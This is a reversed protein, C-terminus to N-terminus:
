LMNKLMYLLKPPCWNKITLKMQQRFNRKSLFRILNIAAKEELHAHVHLFNFALSKYNLEALIMGTRLATEKKFQPNVKEINVVYLADGGASYRSADKLQLHNQRKTKQYAANEYFMCDVFHMNHERLFIDVDGFLCQEKYVPIFAVETKIVSVLNNELLRKAGKLIKLETGQTYLKLFDIQPIKNEETFSDLSTTTVKVKEKVEINNKWEAFGKMMGFHLQYNEFDPELLSSMSSHNALNLDAFGDRDSLATTYILYESFKKILLIDRKLLEAEVPQPEFAYVKTRSALKELDKNGGKAGADFLVIESNLLNKFPNNKNM